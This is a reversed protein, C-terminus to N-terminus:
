ARAYRDHYEKQQSQKDRISAETDPSLLHLRTRLERGIFLSSPTVGTTAHPTSRYRMLFSALSQELPLGDRHSAKLAKKMTQVLHEAAGNTAPHYPSSRIHKVGNAVMFQRFEDSIFQPGNDSVLQRPIGNRAFVDRLVAITKATTTSSM